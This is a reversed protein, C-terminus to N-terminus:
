TDYIKYVFLSSCFLIPFCRNRNLKLDMAASSMNQLNSFKQVMNKFITILLSDLYYTRDFSHTENNLNCVDEKSTQKTSLTKEEAKFQM